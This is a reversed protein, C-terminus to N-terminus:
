MALSQKNHGIPNGLDYKVTTKSIYSLIDTKVVVTILKYDEMYSKLNDQIESLFYSNAYLFYQLYRQINVQSIIRRGTNLLYFMSLSDVLVNNYLSFYMSCKPHLKRYEDRSKDWYLTLKTTLRPETRVQLNCYQIIIIYINVLM